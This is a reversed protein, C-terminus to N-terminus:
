AGEEGAPLNVDVELGPDEQAIGGRFFWVLVGVIIVLIIVILVTNTGSQNSHEM